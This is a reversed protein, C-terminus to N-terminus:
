SPFARTLAAQQQNLQAQMEEMRIWSAEMQERRSEVFRELREIQEDISSTQNNLNDVQTQWTGDTDIYGEVFTELKVALGESSDSFLTAVATADEALAADLKDSDAIELKDTGDRFDIGLSELRTVDGGALSSVTGFVQSRLTSSLSAWELSGAFTAAEVSGEDGVTVKTQEEIFDQVDNYSAVFSEIQSRASSTDAEVAITETLPTSVSAAANESLTLTLGEIGHVDADLTNGVSTFNAGNLSFEANEGFSFSAGTATEELGLAGLLGGSVDEITQGLSGAQRNTLTFRDDAPDYAMTVGAESANVRDIINRLSDSTTYSIEVGNIKFSGDTPTVGLGAANVSADLSVQGMETLSRSEVSSTGDSFLGLVTLLNSTDGSHGLHLAEAGDDAITIRGTGGDLSASVGTLDDIQTVVDDLSDATDITLSQGNITITGGTISPFFNQAALTGTSDIASGINTGGALRTRSAVQTVSLDYSGVATNAAALASVSSSASSTTASRQGFLSSESLSDASSQLSGLKTKLLTYRDLKTSIESQEAQLRRVPIRELEVLQDVISRWDVGSVLGSLALDSM